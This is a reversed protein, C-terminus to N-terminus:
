VSNEFSDPRLSSWSAASADRAAIRSAPSVGASMSPITVNVISELPSSSRMRASPM